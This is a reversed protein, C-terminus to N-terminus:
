EMQIKHLLKLLRALLEKFTQYFEATLGDMGSNKKM